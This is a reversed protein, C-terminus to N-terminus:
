KPLSNKLIKKKKKQPPVSITKKVSFFLCVFFLYIFYRANVNAAPHRVRCNVRCNGSSNCVFVEPGPTTASIQPVTSRPVASGASGLSIVLNKKKQLKCVLYLTVASKM